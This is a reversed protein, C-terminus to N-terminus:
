VKTKGTEHDKGFIQKMAQTVICSIVAPKPSSLFIFGAGKELFLRVFSKLSMLCDTVLCTPKWHSKGFLM